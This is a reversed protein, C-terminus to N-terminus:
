RCSPTPSASTTPRHRRRAARDRPGRRLRPLRRPRRAAPPARRAEALPLARAAGRPLRARGRRASRLRPALGATVEIEVDVPSSADGRALPRRVLLPELARRARGVRAPLGPEDGVMPGSPASPRSPTPWCSAGSRCSRTTRPAARLLARSGPLRGTRCRGSGHDTGPSRRRDATVRAMASVAISAADLEGTHCAGRGEQDVTVLLLTATATTARGGAGVPPRGLDRGQVLVGPPEPELVLDARHELTRRLAEADMWGLM